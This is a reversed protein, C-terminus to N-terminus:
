EKPEKMGFMQPTAGGSWKQNIWPNITYGCTVREDPVVGPPLWYGWRDRYQPILPSNQQKHIIEQLVVIQKELGDIRKDQEHLTEWVYSIFANPDRQFMEFMAEEHSRKKPM